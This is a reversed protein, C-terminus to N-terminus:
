GYSIALGYPCHIPGATTKAQCQRIGNVIQCWCQSGGETVPSTLSLDFEFHKTGSSDIIFQPEPAAPKKPADPLPMWFNVGKPWWYPVNFWKGGYTYLDRVGGSNSMALVVTMDEPMQDNCDIWQTMLLEVM